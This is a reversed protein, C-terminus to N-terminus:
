SASGAPPPPASTVHGGATSLSADRWANPGPPGITMNGDSPPPPSRGDVICTVALDGMVNIATRCRDLFWDVTLLIPIQEPPLGVATFVAIMTVLGAEPIGAAGVSAFVAMIVLLVQQGFDLQMGLLQSIFLAAMAEYLATGDHNFTGGVMIGLSASEESVGLKERSCAFTVPLTAASSATSFATLFADAGGRLFQLPTFRSSMWIRVLYYVAQLTLAALVAVIFAGLAGFLGFGEVAVVRAVVALVAFPVLEFIWHLMVLTARFGVDLLSDVVQYSHEGPKLQASRIKRLAVGLAVALIIVTIIDNEAFPRVVSWPRPEGKQEKKQQLKEIREKDKGRAATTERDIWAGPRVVNAVLIGILIAVVTNLMLQAFLVFSKRGALDVRTLSRVVSLFILPTALVGLLLLVLDSFLKLYYPVHRLMAVAARRFSELQRVEKDRLIERLADFDPPSASVDGLGRLLLGLVLGVALAALIRLPLPIRQYFNAPTSAAHSDSATM